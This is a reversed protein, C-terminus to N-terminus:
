ANHAKSLEDCLTNQERPCWDMTVVTGSHRLKRLATLAKEYASVYLGTKAKWHKNMIKIVLQSDGLVRLHSSPLGMEIFAELGKALAFFESVNNSMEPGTGIVGHGSQIVVGRHSLAFGYTATGGPNPWCSGDFNLKYHEM